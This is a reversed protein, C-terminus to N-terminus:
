SRRAPLTEGSGAGPPGRRRDQAAAALDGAVWDEVDLLDADREVLEGALDEAVELVVLEGDDPEEVLRGAHLVVLPRDELLKIADGALELSLTSGLLFIPRHM